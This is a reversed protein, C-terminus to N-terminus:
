RSPSVTGGAAWRPRQQAPLQGPNRVCEVCESRCATHVAPDRYERLGAQEVRVGATQTQEEEARRRCPHGWPGLPRRSASHSGAGREKGSQMWLYLRCAAACLPLSGPLVLRTPHLSGPLIPTGQIGEAQPSGWGVAARPSSPCGLLTYHHGLM